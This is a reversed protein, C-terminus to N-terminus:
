WLVEKNLSKQVAPFAGAPSAGTADPTVAASSAGCGM